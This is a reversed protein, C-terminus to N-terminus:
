IQISIANPLVKDIFIIYRDLIERKYRATATAAVMVFLIFAHALSSTITGTYNANPYLCTVGVFVFFMVGFLEAFLPRIFDLFCDTKKPTQPQSGEHSKGEM